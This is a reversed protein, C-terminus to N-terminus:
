TCAFRTLEIGENPPSPFSPALVAVSVVVQAMGSMKGSRGRNPGTGFNERFAVVGVHVGRGIRPGGGGRHVGGVVTLPVTKAEARGSRVQGLGVDSLLYADREEDKM